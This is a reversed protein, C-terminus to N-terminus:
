RRFWAANAHLYLMHKFAHHLDSNSLLHQASWPRPRFFASSRERWGLCRRRLLRALHTMRSLVNDAKEDCGLRQCDRHLMMAKRHLGACLRLVLSELMFNLYGTEKWLDTGCWLTAVRRGCNASIVTSFAWVM